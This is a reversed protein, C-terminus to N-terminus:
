RAAEFGPNKGILINQTSGQDIVMSGSGSRNGPIELRNGDVVVDHSNKVMMAGSYGARDPQRNPGIFVNNRVIVNKSSGIVLAQLPSERIVNGEILINELVPQRSLEFDKGQPEIGAATFLDAPTHVDRNVNALTNGRVIINTPVHGITWRTWRLMTSVQLGPYGINSVVNGEVLGNPMHIALGMCLGN